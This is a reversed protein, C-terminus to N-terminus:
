KPKPKRGVETSAAGPSRQTCLAAAPTRPSSVGATRPAIPSPRSISVLAAPIM